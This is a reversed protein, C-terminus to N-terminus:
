AKKISKLRERVEQHKRQVEERLRGVTEAKERVQAKTESKLGPTEGVPYPATAVGAAALRDKTEEESAVVVVPASKFLWGFLKQFLSM